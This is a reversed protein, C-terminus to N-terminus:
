NVLIDQEGYSPLGRVSDTDVSSAVISTRVPFYEFTITIGGTVVDIEVTEHKGAFNSIERLQHAVSILDEPTTNIRLKTRAQTNSNM